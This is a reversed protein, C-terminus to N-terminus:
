NRKFLLYFFEGSLTLRNKSYYLYVSNWVSYFEVPYYDKALGDLQSNNVVIVIRFISTHFCCLGYLKRPFILNM